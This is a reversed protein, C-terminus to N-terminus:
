SVDDEDLGFTYMHHGTGFHNYNQSIHLYGFVCIQHTTVIPCRSCKGQKEEDGVFFVATLFSSEPKKM